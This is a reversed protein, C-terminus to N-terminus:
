QWHLTSKSTVTIDYAYDGYDYLYSKGVIGPDVNTTNSGAAFVSSSFAIGSAAFLRKSLKM